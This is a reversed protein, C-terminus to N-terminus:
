DDMDEFNNNYKNDTNNIAYNDRTDNMNNYHMNNSAGDGEYRSKSEEEEDEFYLRQGEQKGYDQM